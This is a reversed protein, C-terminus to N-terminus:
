FIKLKEQRLLIERRLTEWYTKVEPTVNPSQPRSNYSGDMKNASNHLYIALIAFIIALIFWIM